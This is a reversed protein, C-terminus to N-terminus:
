RLWFDPPIQIPEVFQELLPQQPTPKRIEAEPSSRASAAQSSGPGCWPMACSQQHTTQQRYRQFRSLSGTCYGQQAIRGQLANLVNFLPGSSACIPRAQTRTQM